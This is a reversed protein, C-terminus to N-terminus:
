NNENGDDTISFEIRRNLRRGEETDNSAIPLSAGKGDTSLRESDVGKSQLYAAVALARKSSLKLNYNDEGESSTHGVVLLKLAPIESMVQFVENLYFESEPLLVDSDKEFLIEHFHVSQGETNEGAKIRSQIEELPSVAKYNEGVPLLTEEKSIEEDKVEKRTLFFLIGFILLLLLILIWWPFKKKPPNQISNMLAPNIVNISYEGKKFPKASEFSVVKVGYQAVHKILNEIDSEGTVADKSEWKYSVLVEVGDATKFIQGEGTFHSKSLILNRKESEQRISGPQIVGYLREGNPKFLSDYKKGNENANGFKDFGPNIEDPLMEKLEAFTVEPYIRLLADVIGLATANMTKAEVEVVGKSLDKIQADTLKKFIKISM